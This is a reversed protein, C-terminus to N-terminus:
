KARGPFTTPSFHPLRIPCTSRTTSASNTARARATRGPCRCLVLRGRRAADSAASRAASRRAEGGAGVASVDRRGSDAAARVAADNMGFGCFRAGLPAAGADRRGLAFERQRSAGDATNLVQQWSKYEPMSRCNSRSRRPRPTSCSSSRRSPRAGGARARLVSVPRGSFELGAGDDRGGAPTLWLVGYSGDPAGATSGAVPVSSRFDGACVRDAPRHFRDLRRRRPRPEDWDVWGIENDQCYANNNGGPSNGVEDGALILPMGQALLLCALQNKRLQRRLAIITPITPRGKMGAITATTTTPATAITRAMPRTTSRTTASCIPWRSVTMSPSTISAPARRAATM